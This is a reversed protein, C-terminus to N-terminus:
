YKGWAAYRFVKASESLDTGLTLGAATTAAVGTLRTVSGAANTVVATTVTLGTAADMGDFWVEITDGDTINAFTAYDPIFGLELTIASGTGTYSGAAFNCPM